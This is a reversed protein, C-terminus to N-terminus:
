ILIEIKGVYNASVQRDGNSRKVGFTTNLMRALLKCPTSAFACISSFTVGHQLFSARMEWLSLCSMDM